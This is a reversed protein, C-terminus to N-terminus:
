VGCIFLFFVWFFHINKVNQEEPNCNIVAVYNKVALALHNVGLTQFYFHSTNSTSTIQNDIAFCYYSLCQKNNPNINPSFISDNKKNQMTDDYPHIFEYRHVYCDHSIVYVILTSQQGAGLSESMAKTNKKEM